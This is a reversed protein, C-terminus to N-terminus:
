PKGFGHRALVAQGAPSVVYAVFKRPTPPTPRPLSRRSRISWRARRRCSSPSGSRAPCPRPTPRTCSAPTSRAAPSTTSRRAFRRRASRRPRSRRGSARRRSCRRRTDAPRCARRIGIALRKVAPRALDALATPAARADHPVVVVLANGAFDAKAGPRVLQQQEAQQM